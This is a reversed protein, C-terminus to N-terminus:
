DGSSLNLVWALAVHQLYTLATVETNGLAMIASGYMTNNYTAIGCM